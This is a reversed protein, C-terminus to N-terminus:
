PGCNGLIIVLPMAVFAAFGLFIVTLLATYNVRFPQMFRNLGAFRWPRHVNANMLDFHHSLWSAFHKWFIALICTWLGILGTLIVFAYIDEEPAGSSAQWTRCPSIAPVWMTLLAVTALFEVICVAAAIRVLKGTFVPDFRRSIPGSHPTETM